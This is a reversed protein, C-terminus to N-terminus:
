RVRPPVPATNSSKGHGRSDIAIVRYSAHALAEIQGGMFEISCLGAHLVVVPPGHPEGFEEWYIRTGAPPRDVYGSARLHGDHWRAFHVLTKLEGPVVFIWGLAVLAVLVVAAVGLTRIRKNM